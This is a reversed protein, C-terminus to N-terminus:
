SDQITGYDDFDDYGISRKRKKFFYSLCGVTMILAILVAGIIALFVVWGKHIKHGSAVYTTLSMSDSAAPFNVVLGFRGGPSSFYNTTTVNYFVGNRLDLAQDLTGVPYGVDEDDNDAAQYQVLRVM